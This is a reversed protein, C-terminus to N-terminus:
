KAIRLRYFTNSGLSQGFFGVPIWGQLDSSKEVIIQPSQNQATMLLNPNQFVDEAFWWSYTATNIATTTFFRLDVPGDLRTGATVQVLNSGAGNKSLYANVVVDGNMSGFLEVTKGAPVSVVAGNTTDNGALLAMKVPANQIRRFYIACPATVRLEAPGAVAYRASGSPPLRVAYSSNSAMIDGSLVDGAIVSTIIAVENTAIILKNTGVSPGYFTEAAARLFATGLSLTLLLTCRM